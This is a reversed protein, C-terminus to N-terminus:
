VGLLCIEPLLSLASEEFCSDSHFIHKSQPPHSLVLLGGPQSAQAHLRVFCHEPAGCGELAEDVIIQEVLRSEQPGLQFTITETSCPGEVETANWQITELKVQGAVDLDKKLKGFLRAQSVWANSTLKRMHLLPKTLGSRKPAWSLLVQRTALGMSM